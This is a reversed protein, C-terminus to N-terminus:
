LESKTSLLNKRSFGRQCCFGQCAGDAVIDFGGKVSKLLHWLRPLAVQCECCWAHEQATSLSVLVPSGPVFIWRKISRSLEALGHGGRRPSVQSQRPARETAPLIISVLLVVLEMTRNLM